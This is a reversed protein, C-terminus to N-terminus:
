NLEHFKKHDQKEWMVNWYHSLYSGSKTISITSWFVPQQVAINYQLSLMSEFDWGSSRRRFHNNDSLTIIGKM